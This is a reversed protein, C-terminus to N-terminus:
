DDSHEPSVNERFKEDAVVPVMKLQLAEAVAGVTEPYEPPLPLLKLWMRSFEPDVISLTVYGIVGCALPQAPM